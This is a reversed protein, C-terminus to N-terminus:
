NRRAPAVRWRRAGEWQRPRERQPACAGSPAPEAITAWPGLRGVAHPIKGAWPEFGHERCQCASEWGSRWWPLGVDQNKLSKEWRLVKTRVKKKKKQPINKVLRRKNNDECIADWKQHTIECNIRWLWWYFTLYRIFKIKWISLAYKKKMWLMDECHM